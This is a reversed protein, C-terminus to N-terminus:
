KLNGGSGSRSGGARNNIGGIGGIGGMPFAGGKQPQNQTQTQSEALPPLIIQEGEDLGSLIEIYSENNIGVEVQKPMTNEYYGSSQIM